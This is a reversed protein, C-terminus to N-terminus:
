RVVNLFIGLLSGLNLDSGISSTPAFGEMSSPREPARCTAGDWTGGYKVCNQEVYNMLDQKDQFQPMPAPATVSGGEPMVPPMASPMPGGSESSGTPGIRPPLAPLQQEMGKPPVCRAGDWTGGYQACKEQLAEPSIKPAFEERPRVGPMMTHRQKLTELAKQAEDKSLGGASVSFNVCEEAHAEDACYARCEQENRCGGPGGHQEVNQRIQQFKKFEEEQDKKLLNHDKAFAYCEDHHAPDECYTKCAAGKCGGPGTQNLFQKAQGAEEPSILGHEQAFNLCEPQHGEMDCYAKCQEGSCGGPGNTITNKIRANADESSLFGAKVGFNVCEETHASDACYARCADFSRCGGPGGQTEIVQSAKDFNKAADKDVLGNEKAFKYCEEQHAADECYAKCEEGRCGGPGTKGILARAKAAEDKSFLGHAQAFGICAEKHDATECYARCEEKSGCNGLEAVPFTVSAALAFLAVAFLAGSVAGFVLTKKTM